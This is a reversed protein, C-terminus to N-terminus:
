PQIPATPELWLLFEANGADGLIPSAALGRLRVRRETLWHIFRGLVTARLGPDTIVGGRPVEERRAEFQPKFLAVARGGARLHSFAPPLVLRLSIFSVDAVVLGVPEPLQFPHRANVGEMSVVRPDALLRGHLQGRGADVAYVREAGAQLLCDTFGGTSAGVDLAVTGAPDIGFATLAHALKQGGRSVFRPRGRVSVAQDPRVQQGPTPRGPHDPLTVDGAMVLATAQATTEAIGRDVLLQDLRM